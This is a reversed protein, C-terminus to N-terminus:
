RSISAEYYRAVARGIPGVEVYWSLRDGPGTRVDLRYIGDPLGDGSARVMAMGARGEVDTTTRVDAPGPLPDVAVLDIAAVVEGDPLNVGLADTRGLPVPWCADEPSTARWIEAVRCDPRTPARGWGSLFSGAAWLNARDPLLRLTATTFGPGDRRPELGAGSPAGGGLGPRVALMVSRVRGAPGVLLDLRYLGPDWPLVHTPAMGNQRHAVMTLGRGPWPPSVEGIDVRRPPGGDPLHWLRVVDVTTGAPHALALADLEDARGLRVVPGSVITTEPDAPIVSPIPTTAADARDLFDLETASHRTLIAWGDLTPSPGWGTPDYTLGVPELLIPLTSPDTSPSPPPPRPAADEGWPKAIALLVGVVVLSVARGEWGSFPRRPAPVRTLEAM